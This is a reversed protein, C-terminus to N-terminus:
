KKAKPCGNRVWEEIEQKRWRVTGGTLRIARPILGFAERQYVSKVHIGLLEAVAEANLLQAPSTQGEGNGIPAAM